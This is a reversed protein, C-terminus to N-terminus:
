VWFVRLGLAWFAISGLSVREPTGIEDSAGRWPEATKVCVKGEPQQKPM